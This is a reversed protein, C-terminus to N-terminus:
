ALYLSGVFDVFTPGLRGAFTPGLQSHKQKYDTVSSMTLSHSHPFGPNPDGSATMQVSSCCRARLRPGPLWETAM